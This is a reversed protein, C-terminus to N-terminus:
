TTREAIWKKMLDLAFTRAEDLAPPNPPLSSNKPNGLHRYHNAPRKVRRTTTESAFGSKGVSPPGGLFEIIDYIKGWTPAEHGVLSLAETIAPDSAARSLVLTALSSSSTPNFVQQAPRVIDFTHTVYRRQGIIKDDDTLRWLACVSLSESYRGLYLALIRHIQSLLNNASAYFKDDSEYPEFNSSQLIWQDNLRRITAIPSSFSPAIEELLNPAHAAGTIVVAYPM